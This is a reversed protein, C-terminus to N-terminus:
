TQEKAKAIFYGDCNCEGKPYAPENHIACDSWHKHDEVNLSRLWLKAIKLKYLTDSYKDTCIADDILGQIYKIQKETIVAAKM